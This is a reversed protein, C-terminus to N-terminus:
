HVRFLDPGKALIFDDKEKFIEAADGSGVKFPPSVEPISPCSEFGKLHKSLCQFGFNSNQLAVTFSCVSVLHASGTTAGQLGKKVAEKGARRYAFTKM